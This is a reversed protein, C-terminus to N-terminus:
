SLEEDFPNVTTCRMEFAEASYDSTGEIEYWMTPIFQRYFRVWQNDWSRNFSWITEIHGKASFFELDKVDSVYWVGKDNDNWQVKASTPDSWGYGTVQGNKYKRLQWYIHLTEQASGHREIKIRAWRSRKDPIPRVKNDDSVSQNWSSPGHCLLYTHGDTAQSYAVPTMWIM